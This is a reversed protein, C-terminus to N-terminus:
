QYSVEKIRVELEQATGEDFHWETVCHRPIRYGDRVCYDSLACSWLHEKYGDRGRYYKRTAFRTVEGSEEVALYAKVRYGQQNLEGVLVNEGIQTWTIMEDLLMSPAFLMQRFYRVLGNHYEEIRGNTRETAISSLVLVARDVEHGKFRCITKVKIFPAVRVSIEEIFADINFFCYDVCDFRAMRRTTLRRSRGSTTLKMQNIRRNNVVGAYEMMRVFLAPKGTLDAPRVMRVPKPNLHNFRIVVNHHRREESFALIYLFVIIFMLYLSVNLLM